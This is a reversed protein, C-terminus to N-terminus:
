ATMTGSGRLFAEVLAAPDLGRPVPAGARGWLGAAIQPALLLSVKQMPDGPAISGRDQHHAVVRAARELNPLLVALAGSLEQHRPVETLLTMVAGGYARNTADYAELLGVLDAVVDDTMSVQGFPSAGLCHTLAATLLGAKSGFRRFLTVEAVGARDAVEQTTTAAYGRAAFMEVATEFLRTVDVVKPM